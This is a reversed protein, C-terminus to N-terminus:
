AGTWRWMVLKKAVAFMLVAERELIKVRNGIQMWVPEIRERRSIFVSDQFGKM